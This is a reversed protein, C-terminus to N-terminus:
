SGPIAKRDDLLLVTTGGDSGWKSTRKNHDDTQLAVNNSQHQLEREHETPHGLLGGHRQFGKGQRGRNRDLRLVLTEPREGLVSQPRWTGESNKEWFRSGRGAGTPRHRRSAPIGKSSFITNYCEAVLEGTKADPHALFIEIFRTKHM